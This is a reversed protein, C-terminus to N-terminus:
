GRRDAQVEYSLSRLLADMQPKSQPPPKIEYDRYEGPNGTMGDEAARAINYMERATVYHLCWSTGDNYKGHLHSRWQRQGSLFVDANQDVCGHTHAKVFTWEPRGLVHIQQRAWLDVRSPTPPNMASIEGNELRPFIGWKRRQWNLALPGQILM